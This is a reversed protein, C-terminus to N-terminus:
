AVLEALREMLRETIADYSFLKPRVANEVITRSLAKTARPHVIRYLEVLEDSANGAGAPSRRVLTSLRRNAINVESEAPAEDAGEEGEGEEGEIAEEAEARRVRAPQAPPAEEEEEEEEEEIVLRPRRRRPPAPAVYEPPAYEEAPVGGIPYYVPPLGEPTLLPQTATPFMSAVYDDAYEKAEKLVKNALSSFGSSRVWARALLQREKLSAGQKGIMEKIFRYISASIRQRVFPTKKTLNFAEGKQLIDLSTDDVINEWYRLMENLEEGTMQPALNATLIIIERWIDETAFEKSGTELMDDLRILLSNLKIKYKDDDTLSEFPIAEPVEPNDQFDMNRARQQLLKKVAPYSANSRIGGRMRGAPAYAGPMPNFPKGNDNLAYGFPVNWSGTSNKPLSSAKYGVIVNKYWRQKNYAITNMATDRALKRSENHFSLASPTAM